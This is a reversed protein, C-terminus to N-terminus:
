SQGRLSPIRFLRGTWSVHFRVRELRTAGSTDREKVWRRHDVADAHDEVSNAVDDGAVRDDARLDEAIRLM